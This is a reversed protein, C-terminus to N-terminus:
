SLETKTEFDARTIHYFNLPVLVRPQSCEQYQQTGDQAIRSLQPTAIM